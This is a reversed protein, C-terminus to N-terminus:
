KALAARLKQIHRETDAQLSRCVAAFEPADSTVEAYFRSEALSSELTLATSLADAATLNFALLKREAEEEIPLTSQMKEPAFRGIDHFLYGRVLVAHLSKLVKGHRQEEQSIQNWFGSFLPFAVAFKGYLAALRNEGDVLADLIKAQASAVEDKASKM